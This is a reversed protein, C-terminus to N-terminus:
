RSTGSSQSTLRRDTVSEEYGNSYDLPGVVRLWAQHVKGQNLERSTRKGKHIVYDENRTLKIETKFITIWSHGPCCETQYALLFGVPVGSLFTPPPYASLPYLQTSFYFGTVELGFDLAIQNALHLNDKISCWRDSFDHWHSTKSNPLVASIDKGDPTGLVFGFAELPYVNWSHKGIKVLAERSVTLM